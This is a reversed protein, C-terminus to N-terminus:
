AIGARPVHGHRKIRRIAGDAAPLEHRFEIVEILIIWLPMGVETSRRPSFRAADQVFVTRKQDNELGFVILCRPLEKWDAGSEKIYDIKASV